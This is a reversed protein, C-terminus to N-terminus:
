RTSRTTRGDLARRDREIRHAHRPQLARDRVARDGRGLRGRRRPRRRQPWSRAADPAGGAGESGRAAGRRAGSGRGGHRRAAGHRRDSPHDGRWRARAGPDRPEIRRARLRRSRSPVPLAVSQAAAAGPLARVAAARVAGLFAALAGGPFYRRRPHVGQRADVMEHFERPAHEIRSRSRWGSARAISPTHPLPADLAAVAAKPAEAGGQLGEPRTKAADPAGTHRPQDRGQRIRFDVVVTPRMLVSDPVGLEDANSDPLREVLRVTDYGIYGFVGAAMPPLEPPLELEFEAILRACRPSRPRTRRRVEEPKALPSHNIEATEGNARWVLDPELGIVSYRGRSPGARSRSSLFSM